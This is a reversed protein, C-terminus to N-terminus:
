DLVDAQDDHDLYCLGSCYVCGQFFSEHGLTLHIKFIPNTSEQRHVCGALWYRNTVCAMVPLLKVRYLQAATSNFKQQIRQIEWATQM